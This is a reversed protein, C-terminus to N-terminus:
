ILELEKPYKMKKVKLKIRRDLPFIYRFKIKEKIKEYGETIAYEKEKRGEKIAKTFVSRKHVRNDGKMYHYSGKVKGCYTWSAAQYVGGHHNQTMDAFSVLCKIQKYNRRIDRITQSIFYTRPCDCDDDVAMRTFEWCNQSTGGEFIAQAIDKYTIHGYTIVGVLKPEDLLGVRTMQETDFLGYAVKYNGMTGTYHKQQIFPKAVQYAIPSVKFRDKTKLKFM